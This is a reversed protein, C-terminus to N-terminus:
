GRVRFSWERPAALPNADVDAVDPGVRVVYPGGV